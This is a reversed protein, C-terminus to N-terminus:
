LNRGPNRNASGGPYPVLRLAESIPRFRCQLFPAPDVYRNGIRVSLHLAESGHALGSRGVVSGRDVRVGRAVEMESLYSVSVKLDGDQITVSRMGAVSGAFTVTGSLPARVVTGASTGLDVGWHGVYLGVPAFSSVTPGSVPALLCVLGVAMWM